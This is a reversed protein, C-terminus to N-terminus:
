LSAIQMGGGIHFIDGTSYPILGSALAGIAGAIDDPKGWRRVPCISGDEIRPSYAARVEATMDTEILGPRIEHVRIGSAALRMAFNQVAMSLGAKSICYAGKEPSVLGANASTITIISRHAAPTEAALMHRAVARTVFFTGRLNVNVLRDFEAEDVDLLDGRVSVQVGANNVLCTIPGLHSVVEDVLAPMSDTKAIDAVVFMAKGGQDEVIAQTQRADDDHELDLFAIDFGRRALDICIARGIGRRGGTVLAVGPRTEAANPKSTDSKADLMMM